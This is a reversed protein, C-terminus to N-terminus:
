LILMDKCTVIAKEKVSTSLSTLNDGSKDFVSFLLESQSDFSTNNLRIKGFLIFNHYEVLYIDHNNKSSEKHVFNYQAFNVGYM